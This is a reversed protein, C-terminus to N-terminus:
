GARWFRAATNIFSGLVGGWMIIFGLFEEPSHRPSLVFLVLGVVFGTVSAVMGIAYILNARDTNNMRQHGVDAVGWRSPTPPTPM